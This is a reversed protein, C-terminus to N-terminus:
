ADMAGLAAGMRDAMSDVFGWDMGMRSVDLTLGISACVCLDRRYREWSRMDSMPDAEREACVSLGMLRERDGRLGDSM